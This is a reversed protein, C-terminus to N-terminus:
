QIDLYKHTQISLRWNRQICTDICLKTATAKQSIPQLAVIPPADVTRLALIRELAEIDKERAVPHKIENARDVAQSLVKLGGKMGVKPSVTVWTEETCQVPYTGSTEIQCQYGQKELTETLSTLDYICPEGGTIVIHKATFGSKQMLQVLGDADSMAWWDSDQTKLAIDGLTTEKAPEKDWTQKTDCWSCGVPCGQLRIFVAPVGTFVGEGQITQFIENIPYKM